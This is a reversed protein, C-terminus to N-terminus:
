SSALTFFLALAQFLTGAILFTMGLRARHTTDIRAAEGDVFMLNLFEIIQKVSESSNKEKDYSNAIAKLQANVKTGTIEQLSKMRNFVRASLYFSGAFALLIGIFSLLQIFLM